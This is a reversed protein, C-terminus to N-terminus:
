YKIRRCTEEFGFFFGKCNMRKYFSKERKEFGLLLDLHVPWTKERIFHRSWRKFLNRQVAGGTWKPFCLAFRNYSLGNVRYVIFFGQKVERKGKERLLIFDKKRNIFVQKKEKKEM